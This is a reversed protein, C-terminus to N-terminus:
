RPFYYMKEGLLLLSEPFYPDRFTAFIGWRRLFRNRDDIPDLKGRSSGVHHFLRVDPTYVVYRDEMQSRFCIDVDNMVVQLQEDMGGLSQWFSREVMQVAGTVAAVDRTALSYYDVHPYNSDTRLHQPYPAVVIGEHEHPGDPDLLCAGVIGVDPLAALALMQELWDPTVVVTDNNLTVIYEARSHDVGRNVIKAYNFPGPCPVVTYKTEEFYSLTEPKVSDNDLIIVNYNPYTTKEEISAICQRVLDVRDRTPIIIDISPPPSPPELRWRVLGGLPGPSTIGKWGRRDLAAQVVRCTDDNMRAADFHQAPRGAPLVKAVHHFRAGRENLRLYADHEYAWGAERSFGGAAFLTEVRLLAPRGIVNYSLLTHPGVAPSKLLPAYENPGDEDGFVVDDHPSAATVLTAVCFRIADRSFSSDALFLWEATTDNLEDNIMAVIDSPQADSENVVVVHVDDADYPVAEIALAYDIRLPRYNVPFIEATKSAVAKTVVATTKVNRRMRRLLHLAPRFLFRATAYRWTDEGLIRGATRQLRTGSMLRVQRHFNVWRQKIEKPTVPPANEDDFRELLPM